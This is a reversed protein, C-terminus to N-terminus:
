GIGKKKSAIEKKIATAKTADRDPLKLGISLSSGRSFILKLASILSPKPHSQACGSKRGIAIM